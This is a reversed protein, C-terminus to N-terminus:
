GDGVEGGSCSGGALLLVLILILTLLRAVIRTRLFEDRSAEIRLSPLSLSSM